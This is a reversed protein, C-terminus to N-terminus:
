LIVQVPEGKRNRVTAVFGYELCVRQLAKAENVTELPITMGRQLTPVLAVWRGPVCGKKRGQKGKPKAIYPPEQYQNRIM